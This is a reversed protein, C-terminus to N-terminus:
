RIGPYKNFLRLRGGLPSVIMDAPMITSRKEASVGDRDDVAHDQARRDAM